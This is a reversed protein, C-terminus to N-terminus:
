CARRGVRQMLDRCLRARSAMCPAPMRIMGGWGRQSAMCPAPVYAPATVRVQALNLITASLSAEGHHYAAQESVYGALQAVQLM